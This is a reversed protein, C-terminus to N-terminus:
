ERGGRMDAGCFACFNPYYHSTRETPFGGIFPKYVRKGCASCLLSDKSEDSWEGQPRADQKGREYANKWLEDSYKQWDDATPANDIIADICDNWGQQYAKNISELTKGNTRGGIQVYKNGAFKHENLEDADILRM